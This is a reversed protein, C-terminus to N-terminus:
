RFREMNRRIDNLIDRYGEAEADAERLDFIFEEIMNAAEEVVPVGDHHEDYARLKEVLKIAKEEKTPM